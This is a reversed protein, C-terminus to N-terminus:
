ITNIHYRTRSQKKDCQNILQGGTAANVVADSLTGLDGMDGRLRSHSTGASTLGYDHRCNWSGRFHRSLRLHRLDMRQGHRLNCM